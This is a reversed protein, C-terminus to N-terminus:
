RSRVASIVRLGLGDGLSGGKGTPLLQNPTAVVEEEEGGSGASRNTEWGWGMRRRGIAAVAPARPEPPFFRM